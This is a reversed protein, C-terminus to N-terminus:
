IALPSALSMAFSKIDLKNCAEIFPQPDVTNEAFLGYHMPLAIKPRLAKVTDVAQEWTMNGLRGNVCILVVDLNQLVPNNIIQEDYESDGTLYVRKADDTIVVGVAEKDSHRAYVPLVEFGAINVPENIQLLICREKAIGLEQFHRYSNVSGAFLCKPYYVAIKQVTEPDLHDLHDHTCLLVDLQLEELAMPYPVMRKVGKAELCDSMYPDVLLRKGKNEFLFSGQTMWSYKM